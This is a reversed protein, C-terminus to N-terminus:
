ETWQRMYADGPKLTGTLIGYYALILSITGSNAQPGDWYLSTMKGTYSVGHYLYSLRM